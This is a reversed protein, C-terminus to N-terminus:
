WEVLVLREGGGRECMWLSPNSHEGIQNVPDDFLSTLHEDDCWPCTWLIKVAAYPVAPSEHLEGNVEEFSVMKGSCEVRRGCAIAVLEKHREVTWAGPDEEYEDDHKIERWADAESLTVYYLRGHRLARFYEVERNESM